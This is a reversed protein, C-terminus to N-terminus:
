TLISVSLTGVVRAIPVCVVVDLGTFTFFEEVFFFVCVITPPIGLILNNDNAGSPALLIM